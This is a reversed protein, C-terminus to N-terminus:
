TMSQKKVARRFRGSLSQGILCVLVMAGVIGAAAVSRCGGGAGAADTGAPTGDTQESESEGGSPDSIAADSASETAPETDTGPGFPEYVDRVDPVFVQSDEAAEERDDRMVPADGSRFVTDPKLPNGSAVEWAATETRFFQVSAYDVYDGAAAPANIMDFRWGHVFGAWTDLGSLDLLYYHWEGDTELYQTVTCAETPGGIDGACLYFTMNGHANGTRARALVVMYRYEDANIRVEHEALLAEANFYVYPDNTESSARIRLVDGLRSDHVTETDVSNAGSLYPALDGSLFIRAATRSTGKGNYVFALDTVTVSDDGFLYASLYLEGQTRVGSLDLQLMRTEAGNRLRGMTLSGSMDYKGSRNYPSPTENGEGIKLGLAAQRTGENETFGSSVTYTVRVSEFPSLGLCGLALVGGASLRIGGEKPFSVGEQGGGDRALRALNIRHVSGDDADPLGVAVNLVALLDYTNGDADVARLYFDYYGDTEEPASLTLDFGATAHGSPYPVGAASLDRRATINVEDPSYWVPSGLDTKSGGYGLPVFTYEYGSIGDPAAVWGAFHLRQGPAFSRDRDILMQDRRSGDHKGAMEDICFSYAKRAGTRAASVPLSWSVALLGLMVYLTLRAFIRGAGRRMAGRGKRRSVM